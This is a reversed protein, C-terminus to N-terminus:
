NEGYYNIDSSNDTLLEYTMERIIGEKLLKKIEQKSTFTEILIEWGIFLVIIVISFFVYFFSFNRIRHNPFLNRQNKMTM